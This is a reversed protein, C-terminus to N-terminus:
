WSNSWFGIDIVGCNRHEDQYLHCTSPSSSRIFAYHLTVAAKSTSILSDGYTIGAIDSCSSPATTKLAYITTGVFTQAQYASTGFFCKDYSPNFSRTRVQASTTDVTMSVGSGAGGYAGSSNSLITTYSGSTALTAMEWNDSSSSVGQIAYQTNTVTTRRESPVKTTSLGKNTSKVFSPIEASLRDGRLPRAPTNSCGHELLSNGFLIPDLEQNRGCRLKQSM